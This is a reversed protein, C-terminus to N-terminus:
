ATDKEILLGVSRMQDRTLSNIEDQLKKQLDGREIPYMPDFLKEAIREIKRAESRANFNDM